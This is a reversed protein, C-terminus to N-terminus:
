KLMLKLYVQFLTGVLKEPRSVIDYDANSFMKPFYERAHRDIAFAHTVVGKAKGEEIAKRVDQIGYNGEYRDYDCPKGDTILIVLKKESGAPLLREYAHRLAPGIRTYGAPELGGLSSSATTWPEDFRKIPIVRCGQRTNSAFGYIGFSQQADELVDSICLVTEKMVDLVRQNMVWSDTSYSSDLLILTSIEPFGRKVGLYLNEPPSELTRTRILLETIAELDFESGNPQHKAKLWETIVSAFRKKLTIILSAHQARATTVWDLNMKSSPVEQVFCWKQRYVRRLYDWEPYPLGSQSKTKVEFGLGELMLDAKYVSESRDQTRLVSDMKLDSLAEQHDLIEDEADNQRSLGNYEELTEAKEFTHFPTDQAGTDGEKVETVSVRGDGVIETITKSEANEGPNAESGADGIAFSLEAVTPLRPFLTLVEPITFRLAELRSSFEPLEQNCYELVADLTSNGAHLGFRIAVSAAATRLLYCEQNSEVTLGLHMRRPLCIRDRIYLVADDTEFLTLDQGSILKAVIVLTSRKDSLEAQRSRLAKEKPSVFVSKYLSKLSLFVNEEWELSAM